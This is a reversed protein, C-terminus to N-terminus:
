DSFISFAPFQLTKTGALFSILQSTTIILSLFRCFAFQIQQLLTISIHHQLVQILNRIKNISTKQFSIDYLTITEYILLISPVPIKLLTEQTHPMFRPTM